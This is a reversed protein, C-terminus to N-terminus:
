TSSLVRCIECTGEGMSGLGCMDCKYNMAMVPLREGLKQIAFPTAGHGDKMIEDLMNQEHQFAREYASASSSFELEHFECYFKAEEALCHRAPRLVALGHFTDFDDGTLWRLLDVRGCSVAGLSILALASADYGLVCCNFGNKLAFDAVTPMTLSEIQNEVGPIPIDSIAEVKKVVASKGERDFKLRTKLLHSVFVSSADGTCIVLVHVPAPIQKIGKRFLDM